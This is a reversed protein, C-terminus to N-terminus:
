GQLVGESVSVLPDVQTGAVCLALVTVLAAGTSARACRTLFGHPMIVGKHTGAPVGCHVKEPIRDM